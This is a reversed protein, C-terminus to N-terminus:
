GNKDEKRKNNLYNCRAEGIGYSAAAGVFTIAAFGICYKFLAEFIRGGTRAGSIIKDGGSGSENNQKSM